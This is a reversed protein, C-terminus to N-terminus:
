PRALQQITMIGYRIRSLLDGFHPVRRVTVNEFGRIHTNAGYVKYALVHFPDKVEKQENLNFSFQPLPTIELVCFYQDPNAPPNQNFYIGSFILFLSRCSISCIVCANGITKHFHLDLVMYGIRRLAHVLIEREHGQCPTATVVARSSM